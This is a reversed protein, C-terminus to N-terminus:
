KDFIEIRFRDKGIFSFNRTYQNRKGLYGYKKHDKKRKRKALKRTKKEKKTLKKPKIKEADVIQFSFKIFRWEKEQTM